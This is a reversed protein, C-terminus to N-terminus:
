KESITVRFPGARDTKFIFREAESNYELTSADCSFLYVDLEAFLDIQGEFAGNFPSSSSMDVNADSKYLDPTLVRVIEFQEHPAVLHAASTPQYVENLPQDLIPAWHSFAVTDEYSTGDELFYDIRGYHRSPSFKPFCLTTGTTNTLTFTLRPLGSGSTDLANFQIKKQVITYIEGNVGTETEPVCASIMGLPVFGIIIAKKM